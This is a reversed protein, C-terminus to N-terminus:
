ENFRSSFWRGSKVRIPQALQIGHMTNRLIANCQSVCFTKGTVLAGLAVTEGRTPSQSRPEFGSHGRPLRDSKGRPEIGAGRVAVCCSDICRRM